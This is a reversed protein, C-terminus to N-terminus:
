LQSSKKKVKKRKLASKNGEAQLLRLGLGFFCSLFAKLRLFATNEFDKKL